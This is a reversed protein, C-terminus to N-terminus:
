SHTAISQMRALEFEEALPLSQKAFKLSREAHTVAVSKMEHNDLLSLSRFAKQLRTVVEVCGAGDRAIASFADDFMDNLSIEQIFVRDHEVSPEECENCTQDWRVFLRVFTGIIDIATGPDNVAPSLARSAIESLVILGFRPDAEFTRNGGIMFAGIAAEKDREEVSGKGAVLYALPEGPSAFTGPLACVNIRGDFKEALSQLKAVDISQVYGVSDSFVPMGQDITLGRRAGLTPHTALLTLADDTAAEVKEITNGLRGLRAIRDVWRVFSLIVLVFVFITVLFLVFRGAQGYFGNLLAVLAVLSFIFSGIFISLANQSVDDGVVLPFSRPTASSSASAYASLMSGVSFVAIVLMSASIIKLLAELSDASIDPFSIAEGHTDAVGAVFAAFLSLFCSVLPKVWLRERLRAFHFRAVSQFAISM